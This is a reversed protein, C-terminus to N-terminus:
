YEQSKRSIYDRAEDEKPTKSKFQLGHDGPFPNKHDYKGYWIQTPIGDPFAPCVREEDVPLRACFFCVPSLLYFKDEEDPGDMEIDDDTM